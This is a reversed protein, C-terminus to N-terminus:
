EDLVGRLNDVMPFRRFRAQAGKHLGSGSPQPMWTVCARASCSGKYPATAIMGEYPADEAQESLVFRANNLLYSIRVQETLITPAGHVNLVIKSDGIWQDREGGWVAVLNKFQCHKAVEQLLASRRPSLHGYLLM